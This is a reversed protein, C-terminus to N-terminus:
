HPPGWEDLVLAEYRACENADLFPEVCASGLEHYITVVLQDAADAVQQVAHGFASHRSFFPMLVTLDNSTVSHFDGLLMTSLRLLGYLVRWHVSATQEVYDKIAAVVVPADVHSPQALQLLASAALNRIASSGDGLRHLLQALVDPLAQLFGDVDRLRGVLLVLLRTAVAVVHELPSVCGVGLWALYVTGPLADPAMHEFITMLQPLSRDRLHAHSSCAEALVRLPCVAALIAESATLFDPPLPEADQTKEIASLPRTANTEPRRTVLAPMTTTRKPSPLAPTDPVASLAMALLGAVNSLVADMELKLLTAAEFDENAVVTCKQSQLQQLSQAYMACTDEHGKLTKALAYDHADVCMQRSRRLHDLVERLSVRVGRQTPHPVAFGDYHADNRSSPRQVPNLSLTAKLKKPSQPDVATQGYLVVSVLGVQDFVNLRNRHCSRLVLKLYAVDRDILITKLERANYQTAVNSDLAVYGLLAFAADLRPKIQVDIRSPIKTQHVLVQCKSVRVGHGHNVMLVLEQPYECLKSSQWGHSTSSQLHISPHEDDESSATTVLFPIQLKMM